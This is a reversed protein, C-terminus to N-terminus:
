RPRPITNIRLTPNGDTDPKAPVYARAQAQLAALVAPIEERSFARGLLAEIMGVHAPNLPDLQVPIPSVPQNRLMVATEAAERRSMAVLEQVRSTDTLLLRGGRASPVMDLHMASLRAEPTLLFNQGMISNRMAQALRNYEAISQFPNRAEPGTYDVAFEGLLARARIPNMLTGNPNFVALGGNPGRGITGRVQTPDAPPNWRGTAAEHTWGALVFALNSRDMAKRAAVMSELLHQQYNALQKSLEANSIPPTPLLPSAFNQSTLPTPNTLTPTITLSPINGPLPQYTTFPAVFTPISAPPTPAVVPILPPNALASLPTLGIATMAAIIQARNMIILIDIFFTIPPRTTSLEPAYPSARRAIM